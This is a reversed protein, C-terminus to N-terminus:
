LKGWGFWRQTPLVPVVPQAPMRTRAIPHATTRADPVALAVRTAKQHAPKPRPRAAAVTRPATRGYLHELKAALRMAALHAAARQSNEYAERARRYDAQAHAYAQRSQLQRRTVRPFTDIRLAVLAIGRNRGRIVVRMGPELPEGRPNIITGRILRVNDFFGRDDRVHLAYRGDFSSITGRVVDLPDIAIAYSPLGYPGAARAGLPAAAIVLALCIPLLRVM